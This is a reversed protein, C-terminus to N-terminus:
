RVRPQPDTTSPAEKAVHKAGDIQACLEDYHFQLPEFIKFKGLAPIPLYFIPEGDAVIQIRFYPDLNPYQAVEDRVRAAEGRKSQDCLSKALEIKVITHRFSQEMDALEELYRRALKEAEKSKGMQNKCIILNRTVAALKRRDSNQEVTELHKTLWTEAEEFQGAALSHLGIELHDRSKLEISNELRYKSSLRLWRAHIEQAFPEAGLADFCNAYKGLADITRESVEGYTRQRIQVLELLLDSAGAYDGRFYKAYAVSELPSRLEHDGAGRERRAQLIPRALIECILHHNLEYHCNTLWLGVSETTRNDCGFVEIAMGYSTQFHVAASEFHNRAFAAKGSAFHLQLLIDKPEPRITSVIKGWHKALSEVEDFRELVILTGLVNVHAELTEKQNSGYTKLLWEAIESYRQLAEETEGGQRLKDADSNWRALQQKDQPDLEVQKTVISPKKDDVEAALSHPGLIICIAIVLRVM